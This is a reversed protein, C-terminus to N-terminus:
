TMCHRLFNQIEKHTNNYAEKIDADGKANKMLHTVM